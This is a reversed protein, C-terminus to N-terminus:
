ELKKKIKDIVDNIIKKCRKKYERDSESKMRKPIEFVIAPNANKRLKEANRKELATPTIGDKHTTQHEFLVDVTKKGNSIRFGGDAYSSGKNSNEGHKADVNRFYPEKRWSGDKNTGGGIVELNNITVKKRFQKPFLDLNMDVDGPTNGNGRRSELIMGIRKMEEDLEPFTEITAGIKPPIDDTKEPLEPPSAPYEEKQPLKDKEKPLESPPLPPLPPTISTRSASKTKSGKDKAKEDLKKAAEAAGFLRGLDRLVKPALRAASAILPAVGPGLTLRTDKENPKNDPTDVAEGKPAYSALQGPLTNKNPRAKAKPGGKLSGLPGASKMWDWEGEMFGRALTKNLKKETPGGPKLTGDVKLKNQRQFNEVAEFLNRDPYPTIGWKPAKYHGLGGMIAKLSLVDEPDANASRSLTKRVNFTPLM